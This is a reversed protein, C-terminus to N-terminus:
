HIRSGIGHYLGAIACLLPYLVTNRSDWRVQFLTMGFRQGRAANKQNQTIFGSYRRCSNLVHGLSCHFCGRGYIVPQNVSVPHYIVLWYRVLFMSSTCCFVVSWCRFISPSMMKTPIGCLWEFFFSMLKWLIFFRRRKRKLPQNAARIGIHSPLQKEGQYIEVFFCSWMTNKEEWRQTLQPNPDMYFNASIRLNAIFTLIMCYSNWCWSVGVKSRSLWIIIYIHVSTINNHLYYPYM